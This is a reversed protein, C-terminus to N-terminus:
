TKHHHHYKLPYDRKNEPPEIPNKPPTTIRLALFELTSPCFVLPLLLSHLLEFFFAM